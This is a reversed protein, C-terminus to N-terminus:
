RSPPWSQPARGLRGARVDAVGVLVRAVADYRAVGEGVRNAKLFRDYTQWAFAHVWPRQEALRAAVARLDARPGPGLAQLVERRMPGPVGTLLHPLVALAASYRLQAGGQQCALWAVVSADSEDAFGALHAYEHAILAPREFPLVRSNLIVDLGFPNTMGDIGAARFYWDVMSHKPRPWAPAWGVGVDPLVRTVQPGVVAPLAPAEPWARAHASAHDANLQAITARVLAVGREPTLEAPTVALRAELTPVQYHWGWLTLFLIWATAAVLMTAWALRRVRRGRAHVLVVVLWTALLVIVVDLAAVPLQGSVPSVRPQM